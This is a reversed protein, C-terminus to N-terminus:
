ELPSVFDGRLQKSFYCQFSLSVCFSARMKKYRLIYDYNIIM